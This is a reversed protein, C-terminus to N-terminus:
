AVGDIIKNRYRMNHSVQKAIKAKEKKLQKIEFEIRSIRKSFTKEEERLRHLREKQRETIM